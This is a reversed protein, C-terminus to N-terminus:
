DLCNASDRDLFLVASDHIRLVSAPCRDIIPGLLAERVVEAKRASPVICYLHAGKMIVTITITIGYEPVDAMTKFVFDHFQQVRCKDDLTIIKLAKPDNFDAEGPENFAIHGNEGIGLCIIDIDDESLLAAYRRCEQDLDEAAGNLYHVKGPNVKEYLEEKLFKGFSYPAELSVGAYEDQNFAVVRSWDIGEEMALAQLFERQSPASAFIVRAKGKVAVTDRIKGAVRRAAFSGMVHRDGYIEVNLKDYKLKRVEM